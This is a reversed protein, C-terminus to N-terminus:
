SIQHNPPTRESDELLQEELYYSPSQPNADEGHSTKQPPANLRTVFHPDAQDMLAQVADLLHICEGHGM